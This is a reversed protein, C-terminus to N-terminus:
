TLNVQCVGQIPLFCVFTVSNVSCLLSYYFLISKDLNVWSMVCLVCVCASCIHSEAKFLVSYFFDSDREWWNRSLTYKDRDSPLIRPSLIKLIHRMNETNKGEHVHNQLMNMENSVHTYMNCTHLNLKCSVIIHKTYDYAWLLLVMSKQYFLFM